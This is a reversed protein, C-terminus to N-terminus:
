EAGGAGKGKLCEPTGSYLKRFQPGQLLLQDLGISTATMQNTVSGPVSQSGIQCPQGSGSGYDSSGGQTGGPVQIPYQLQM